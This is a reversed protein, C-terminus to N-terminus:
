TLHPQCQWDNVIYHQLPTVHGRQATAFSSVWAGVSYQWYNVVWVVTHNLAISFTTKDTSKVQKNSSWSSSPMLSPMNYTYQASCSYLCFNILNISLYMMYCQHVTLQGLGRLCTCYAVYYMAHRSRGLLFWVYRVTILRLSLLCITLQRWSHNICVSLEMGQQNQKICTCPYLQM